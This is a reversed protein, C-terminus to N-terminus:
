EWTGVAIYKVLSNKSIWLDDFNNEIVKKFIEDLPIKNKYELIDERKQYNFIEDIKDNKLLQVEQEGDPHINSKLYVYSKETKDYYFVYYIPLYNVNKKSLESRLVIWRKYIM